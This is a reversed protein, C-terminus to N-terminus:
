LLMTKVRIFTEDSSTIIFKGGQNLIVLFTVQKSNGAALLAAGAGLLGLGGSFVTGLGVFAATGWGVKKVFSKTEKETILELSSIEYVSFIPSTSGENFFSGEVFLGNISGNSSTIVVPRTSKKLQKADQQSKEVTALYLAVEEKNIKLILTIAIVLIIILIKVALAGEISAIGYIICVAIIDVLCGAAQGEPSSQKQGLRRARQREIREDSSIQAQFPSLPPSQHALKSPPIDLTNSSENAAQAKRLSRLDDAEKRAKRLFASEKSSFAGISDAKIEEDQRM